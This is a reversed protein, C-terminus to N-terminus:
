SMEPLLLKLAAQQLSNAGPTGFCARGGAAVAAGGWGHPAGVRARVARVERSSALGGQGGGAGRLRGESAGGKWCGAAYAPVQGGQRVSLREAGAASCWVRM